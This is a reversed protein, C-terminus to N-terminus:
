GFISQQDPHQEERTARRRRTPRADEEPTSSPIRFVTSAPRVAHKSTITKFGDEFEVMVSNMSGATVIRCRQGKREPLKKRWYWVLPFDHESKTADEELVLVGERMLEEAEALLLGENTVLKALKGARRAKSISDQTGRSTGDWFAVVHDALEVILGNRHFACDRFSTFTPPNIRLKREVVLAQARAGETFTEFSWEERDAISMFRYPRFSVVELGRSSAMREATRDVGRAGGSVIVAGPHKTALASIWREVADLSPFDRSGVIGVIPASM